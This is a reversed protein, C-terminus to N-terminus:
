RWHWSPFRDVAKQNTLRRLNAGDRDMIYLDWNADDRDSAFVIAQGDRAWVPTINNAALDSIRRVNSGDREMIYIGFNGSGEQNSQFLIERGDPSWRPYLDDSKSTTLAQQNSGDADMVYINRDGDRESVFAIKQGDPSCDCRSENTTTNTLNKINSGDANCTYLQFIANEGRNTQFLIKSGDPSWDPSWSHTAQLPMLPRQNSGDAKSTYIQLAEKDVRDSVFAIQSGDPSWAPEVNTGIDAGTTLQRKNNGDDDMIWVQLNDSPGSHWVILGPRPTATPAPTDTPLSVTQRPATGPPNFYMVGAIVWVILTFATLLLRRTTQRGFIASGLSSLGLLILLAIILYRLM